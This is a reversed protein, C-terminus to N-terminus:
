RGSIFREDESGEPSKIKVIAKHPDGSLLLEIPHSKESNMPSSSSFSNILKSKYLQQVEELSLGSTIELYNWIEQNAPSIDQQGSLIQHLTALHGFMVPHQAKVYKELFEGNSAFPSYIMCILQQDTIGLVSQTYENVRKRVKAISESDKYRESMEDILSEPIHKMAMLSLAFGTYEKLGEEYTRGDIYVSRLGRIHAMLAPNFCDSKYFKFTLDNFEFGLYSILFEWHAGAEYNTCDYISYFVPEKGIDHTIGHEDNM